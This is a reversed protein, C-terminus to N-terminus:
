GVATPDTFWASSAASCGCREARTGAGDALDDLNVPVRALARPDAGVLIM